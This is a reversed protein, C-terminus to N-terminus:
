SRLNNGYIQPCEGRFHSFVFYELCLLAKATFKHINAVFIFSNMIGSSSLDKQQLNPFMQWLFLSDLDGSSCLDKQRFNQPM